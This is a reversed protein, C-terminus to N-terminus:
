HTHLWMLSPTIKHHLIGLSILFNTSYIIINILLISIISIAYASMIILMVSFPYTPFYLSLQQDINCRYIKYQLNYFLDPDKSCTKIKWIQLDMISYWFGALFVLELQLWYLWSTLLLTVKYFVAVAAVFLVLMFLSGSRGRRTSPTMLWKMRSLKTSTFPPYRVRCVVVFLTLLVVHVVTLWVAM